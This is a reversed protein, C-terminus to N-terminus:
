AHKMVVGELTVAVDEARDTAEELTEYIEKMTIFKVPDAKANEFLASLGSRLIDDAQNELTNIQYARDRVFLLKHGAVLDIAAVLEAVQSKLVQAFAKLFKDSEKVQYIAIRSAAAEMGDVVSDIDVALAALDERELPTVFSKNILAFLDHTFHDGKSELDKIAPALKPFRSPDILLEELVNAVDVANDAASRLLEFFMQDKSNQFLM